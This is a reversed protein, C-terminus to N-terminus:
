AVPGLLRGVEQGGAGERLPGLGPGGVGAQFALDQLLRLHLLQAHSGQQPYGGARYLRGLEDDQVVPSFRAAAIRQAEQSLPDGEIGAADGDLGRRAHLLHLAVHRAPGGTVPAMCVARPGAAVPKMAVSSARAWASVAAPWAAPSRMHRKGRMSSYLSFRFLGTASM